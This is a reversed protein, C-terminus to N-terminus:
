TRGLRVQRSFMREKRPDTGALRPAREGLKDFLESPERVGQFYTM